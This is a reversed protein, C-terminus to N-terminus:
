DDSPVYIIILAVLYCVESEPLKKSGEESETKIEKFFQSALFIPLEGLVHNQKKSIADM